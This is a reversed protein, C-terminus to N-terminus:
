LEDKAPALLESLRELNDSALDSYGEALRSLLEYDVEDRGGAKLHRVALAVQAHEVSEEGILFTPYYPWDNFVERAGMVSMALGQIMRVIGIIAGHLIYADTKVEPYLSHCLKLGHMNVITVVARLRAVGSGRFLADIAPKLTKDSQLENLAVLAVEACSLLPPVTCDPLLKGLERNSELRACHEGMPGNVLAYVSERVGPKYDLIGNARLVFLRPWLGFMIRRVHQARDEWIVEARVATVLESMRAGYLQFDIKGVDTVEPYRRRVDFITPDDLEEATLGGEVEYRSQQISTLIEATTLVDSQCLALMLDPRPVTDLELQRVMAARMALCRVFADRSVGLAMLHHLYLESARGKYFRELVKTSVGLNRDSRIQVADSICEIGACMNNLTISSTM